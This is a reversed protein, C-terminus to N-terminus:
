GPGAAQRAQQCRHIRARPPKGTCDATRRFEGGQHMLSTGPAPWVKMRTHSIWLHRQACVEVLPPGGRGGAEHQRERRQGDEAGAGQGPPWVVRVRGGRGTGPGEQTLHAPPGARHSQIALPQGQGHAALYPNLVHGVRGSGGVVAGAWQQRGDHSVDAQNVAQGEDGVPWSAQPDHVNRIGTPGLQQGAEGQGTEGCRDRRPAALRPDRGAAHEEAHVDAIGAGRGDQAAHRDLRVGALHHQGAAMGVHQRVPAKQGHVYGVRAVGAHLPHDLAEGADPVGVVQRHGGVAVVDNQGVSLDAQQHQVNRIRPPRAM